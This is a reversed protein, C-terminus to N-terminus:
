SLTPLFVRLVRNCESLDFNYVIKAERLAIPNLTTGSQSPFCLHTGHVHVLEGYSLLNETDQVSTDSIDFFINQVCKRKRSM